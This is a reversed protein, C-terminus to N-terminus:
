EDIEAKYVQIVCSVARVLSECHPVDVSTVINLAPASDPM